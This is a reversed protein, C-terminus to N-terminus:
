MERCQFRDRNSQMDAVISSLTAAMAPPRETPLNSYLLQQPVASATGKRILLATILRRLRDRRGRGQRGTRSAQDRRPLAFGPQEQEGLVEKRYLKAMRPTKPTRSSRQTAHLPDKRRPLEERIGSKDFTDNNAAANVHAERRNVVLDCPTERRRPRGEKRQRLDRSTRAEEYWKTLTSTLTHMKEIINRWGVGTNTLASASRARKHPPAYPIICQETRPPLRLQLLDQFWMGAIFLPLELSRQPPANRSTPWPATPPSRATAAAPQASARTSSRAVPGQDQLAHSSRRAQLQTLLALTVGIISLWKSRAADNIRAVDKALRDANIFATVPVAEKTEKDIMLALHLHRLQPHADAPSLQGWDRDPGYFSTTAWDSFTSM